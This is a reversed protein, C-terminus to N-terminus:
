KASQKASPPTQKLKRMLAERLTQEDFKLEGRSALQKLWFDLLENYLEDAHDPSATQMARLMFAEQLMTGVVSQIPANLRDIETTKKVVEDRGVVLRDGAFIQYNTAVEGRDRIAELDVKYVKAPKGNRQPRVLTLQKPDATPLLGGANDIAELVTESGTIPLHGPAAFDGEMYYSATNYATVDTFVMSSAAPAVIKWLEGSPEDPAGVAPPAAEAPKAQPRAAGDQGVILAVEDSPGAPSKIPKPASPEVPSAAAGHTTTRESVRHVPVRRVTGKRASVRVNAQGSHTRPRTIRSTKKAPQPGDDLQFPNPPRPPQDPIVAQEEQEVAVELGLMEDDLFQRLHKIIAVKMQAVTLGRVQVEGYFGLSITGDARVLREGSIPRGPLADLVEVLVLDPPQVAYPMNFLAGEHPPPDDPISPLPHPTLDYEAIMKDILAKRKVPDELDSQAPSKSAQKTAEPPKAPQTPPKEKPVQQAPAAGTTGFFIVSGVLGLRFWAFWRGVM